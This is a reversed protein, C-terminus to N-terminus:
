PQRNSLESETASLTLRPSDHAPSPRHYPSLEGAPRTHWRKHIWLWQDPYARIMREIAAAFNATNIEIDRKEDGTRVLEVPPDGHFFYRGRKKDWVACTPIVLADARLALLA